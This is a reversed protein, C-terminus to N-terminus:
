KRKYEKVKKSTTGVLNENADFVEKPVKEFEGTLLNFCTVKNKNANSIIELVNDDHHKGYFPNNEGEMNKSHKPRKKGWMPNKEGKKKKAMTELAEPTHKKHWFHNNEGLMTESLM